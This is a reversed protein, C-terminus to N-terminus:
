VDYASNRTQLLIPQSAQPLLGLIELLEDWGAALIDFLSPPTQEEEETHYPIRYEDYMQKLTALSALYVPRLKGLLGEVLHELMEQRVEPLDLRQLAEVKQRQLAALAALELERLKKKATDLGITGTLVQGTQRSFRVFNELSRLPKEIQKNVRDRVFRDWRRRANAMRNALKKNGSMLAAGQAALLVAQGGIRLPATLIATKVKVATKWVKGLPRELPRYVPRVQREISRAAARLARDPRRVAQVITKPARKLTTVVTKPAQRITRQTKKWTRKLSKLIGLGQMSAQRQQAEQQARTRAIQVATPWLEDLIRRQKARVENEAAIAAARLRNQTETTLKQIRHKVYLSGPLTLLSYVASLVPGIAPVFNLGVAIGLTVMSQAIIEERLRRQMSKAITEADAM